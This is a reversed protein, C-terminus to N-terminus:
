AGELGSRLPVWEVCTPLQGTRMFEHVAAKVQDFPIEMDAYQDAWHKGQDHVYTVPDGDRQGHSQWQNRPQGEIKAEAFTVFGLEDNVAVEMQADWRTGGEPFVHYALIPQGKEISQQRAEDLLAELQETDDVVVAGGRGTDYTRILELKM